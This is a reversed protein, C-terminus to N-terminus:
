KVVAFKKRLIGMIHRVNRFYKFAYFCLVGRLVLKLLRYSFNEFAQLKDDVCVGSVAFVGNQLTQNFGITLYHEAHGPDVVFAVNLYVATESHLEVVGDSGILASQPKM